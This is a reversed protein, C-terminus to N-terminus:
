TRQSFLLDAHVWDLHWHMVGSGGPISWGLTATVKGATVLPFHHRDLSPQIGCSLPFPSKRDRVCGRFAATFFNDGWVFASRHSIFHNIPYLHSLTHSPPLPPKCRPLSNHISTSHRYLLSQIKSTLRTPKAAIAGSPIARPKNEGNGRVPSVGVKRGRPLTVAIALDFMRLHSFGPVGLVDETKRLYELSIITRFFVVYSYIARNEFCSLM